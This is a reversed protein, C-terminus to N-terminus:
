AEFRFASAEVPALFPICTPTQLDKTDGLTKKPTKYAQRCVDAAQTMPSNTEGEQRYSVRCDISSFERRAYSAESFGKSLPPHAGWSDFGWGM